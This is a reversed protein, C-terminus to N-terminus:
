CGKKTIMARGIKKHCKDFSIRMKSYNSQCQNNNRMLRNGPGEGGGVVGGGGCGGRRCSRWWWM